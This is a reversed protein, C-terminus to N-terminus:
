PSFGWLCAIDTAAALTALFWWRSGIVGASLAALFSGGVGGIIVVAETQALNPFGDAHFIYVIPVSSLLISLFGLWSAVKKSRVRRM